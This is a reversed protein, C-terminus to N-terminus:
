MLAARVLTYAEAPTTVARWARAKVEPAIRRAHAILITRVGAAAGAIVDVDADGVFLTEDASLGLRDMIAMLGEPHPKHTVLDDGCVVASFVEALQRTELIQETSFRDRGTWLSCSRGREAVTALVDRMGAFEEILALGTASFEQMRQLALPVHAPDELLEAFTRDAPGGLRLFLEAEALPTRYPAIAHAFAKLVMPISDILTGDLDFVVARCAPLRDSM